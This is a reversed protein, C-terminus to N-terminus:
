LLWYSFYFALISTVYCCNYCSWICIFLHLYFNLGALNRPFQHSRKNLYTLKQMKEIKWQALVQTALDSSNPTKRVNQM